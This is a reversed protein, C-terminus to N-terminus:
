EIDYRYSITAIYATDASITQVPRFNRPFPRVNKQHVRRETNRTKRLAEAAREVRIEKMIDSDKKYIQMASEELLLPMMIDVCQSDAKCGYFKRHKPELLCAKATAGTGFCFYIVTYGSPAIKQLIHRIADVFTQRPHVMLNRGSLSYPNDLHFVTENMKLPPAWSVIDAISPYDGSFQPFKNLDGSQMLKELSLGSKRFQIFHQAMNVHFVSLKCPNRIYYRFNPLQILDIKGFDFSKKRARCACRGWLLITGHGDKQPTTVWNSFQVSLFTMGALACHFKQLILCRVLTRRQFCTLITNSSGLTTFSTTPHTHFCYIFRETCLCVLLRWLKSCTKLAYM